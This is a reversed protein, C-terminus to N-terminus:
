AKKAAKKAAVVVHSGNVQGEIAVNVVSVPVAPFSQTLRASVAQQIESGTPATPSVTANIAQAESAPMLVGEVTKILSDGWAVATEVETLFASVGVGGPFAAAIVTGITGLASLLSPVEEDVVGLITVVESKISGLASLFSDYASAVKANFASFDIAM